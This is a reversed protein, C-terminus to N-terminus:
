GILTLKPWLTLSVLWHANLYPYMPLVERLEVEDEKM